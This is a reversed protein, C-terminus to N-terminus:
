KRLVKVMVIAAIVGGGILLLAPLPSRQVIEGAQGTTSLNSNLRPPANTSDYTPSSLKDLTQGTIQKSVWNPLVTEGVQKAGSAIGSTLVSFFSNDGGTKAAEM